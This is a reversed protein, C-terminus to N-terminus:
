CIEGPARARSRALRKRLTAIHKSFCRDMRDPRFDIVCFRKKSNCSQCLPQINEATNLGGAYIPVIHDITIRASSKGCCLCRKGYRDLIQKWESESIEGGNGIKACRRNESYIVLKDRNNKKWKSSSARLKKRNNNRYKAKARWTREPNEKQWEKIRKKRSTKNRRYYLTARHKIKDRHELYYKQHYELHCNECYASHGSKSEKSIHFDDPNKPKGCRICIQKGM